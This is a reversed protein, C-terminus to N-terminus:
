APLGPSRTAPKSIWSVLRARGDASDFTGLILLIWVALRVLTFGEVTHRTVEQGDGHWAVLMSLVGVVSLAAVIQWQRDRWANTAVGMAIALLGGVLLWLAPPWMPYTLPSEITNITPAYIDLSGQGFNYSEEPRTLPDTLLYWPHTALWELYIRGGRRNIWQNLAGFSPDGKLPEVVKASNAISPVSRALRDIRAQEPM